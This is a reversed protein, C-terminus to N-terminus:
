PGAPNEMVVTFNAGGDASRLVTEEAGVTVVGGPGAWVANLDVTTHSVVGAWSAGGNVTRWISGNLGVAVFVGAGVAAIGNVTNSPPDVHWSWWPSAASDVNSWPSENGGGDIATVAFTYRSPFLATVTATTGVVDIPSDGELAGTGVFPPPTSDESDYYIRYGAPAPGSPPDWTLDITAEGVTTAVLNLPAEPLTDDFMFTTGAGPAEVNGAIDSARWRLQYDEGVVFPVASVDYNWVITGTTDLWVEGPAAFGAENWWTGTAVDEISVEVGAVGSADQATGFLGPSANWNSRNGPTTNTSVPATYDFSVAGAVSASNGATDEAM